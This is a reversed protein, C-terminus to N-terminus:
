KWKIFIIVVDTNAINIDGTNMVILAAMAIILFQKEKLLGVFLAMCNAIIHTVIYVDVSNISLMNPLSFIFSIIKEMSAPIVNPNDLPIGAAM